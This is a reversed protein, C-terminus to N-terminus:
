PPWLRSIVDRLSFGNSSIQLEGWGARAEEEGTHTAENSRVRLSLTMLHAQPHFCVVYAYGSPLFTVSKVRILEFV